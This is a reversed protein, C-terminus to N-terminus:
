LSSVNSECDIYDILKQLAQKSHAQDLELGGINLALKLAALIAIQTGNVQPANHAITTMLSDVREAAKTVDHESEDGLLTYSEGFITITYKKTELKM